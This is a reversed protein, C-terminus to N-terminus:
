ILEQAENEATRLQDLTPKIRTSQSFEVIADIASITLTLEAGGTRLTVRDPLDVLQGNRGTFQTAPKVNISGDPFKYTFKEITTKTDM